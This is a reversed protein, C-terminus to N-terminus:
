AEGPSPSGSPGPHGSMVIRDRGTQKATYMAEDALRIIENLNREATLEAIGISITVKVPEKCGSPLFPTEAMRARIREAPIFAQSASTDPLLIAFEEGGYRFCTDVVRVSSSMLEGLAQLVVDGETHGHTDNYMKFHDVDLFLLSSSRDNRCIREIEHQVLVQFHRRNYLGTLGDTISLSLLEAEMAKRQSIDTFFGIVGIELGDEFLLTCSIRIPIERGHIDQVITEFGKLSGHGGYNESYIQDRIEIAKGEPYLQKVRLKRIVDERKYGFIEEAGKNFIFINGKRDNGIIGEPCTQIIDDLFGTKQKLGEHLLTLEDKRRIIELVHTIMGDSDRVPLSSVLVLIDKGDADQHTHISSSPEGTEISTQAPCTHAETDCPSDQRHAANYCFLYKAEDLTLGSATLYPGNAHVIRLDPVTILVAQDTMADIVPFFSTILFSNM